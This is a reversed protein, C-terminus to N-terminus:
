RKGGAEGSGLEVLSLISRAPICFKVVMQVDDAPDEDKRGYYTTMTSCVMGVVAGRENLVPGGSSGKAFDASVCMFPVAEKGEDARQMTYRTITGQSFTYFQRDPHSIVAIRNGVPEDAALPLPRLGKAPVRFVAVDLAADAAVVETVPYFDGGRTMVGFVEDDEGGSFVHENTVLLGDDQLVWATAPEGCEWEGAENKWASTIMLVSPEGARYLEGPVAVAKEAVAVPKVRCKRKEEGGRLKKWSVAKGSRASRLMAADFQEMLREDDIVVPEDVKGAKGDDAWAVAGMAFCLATVRFRMGGIMGAGRLGALVCM